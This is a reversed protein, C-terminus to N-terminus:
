LRNFAAPRLSPVEVDPGPGDGQAAEGRLLVLLRVRHRLHLRPDNEVKLSYSYTNRHTEPSHIKLDAQGVYTRFSPETERRKKRRHNSPKVIRAPRPHERKRM